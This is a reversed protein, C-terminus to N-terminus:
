PWPAETAARAGPLPRSPSARARAPAPGRSATSATTPRRPHPPTSIDLMAAPTPRSVPRGVVALPPLRPGAVALARLLVDLGKRPELTAVTVLHGDTLGLRRVREAADAPRGVSHSPAAGAVVVPVRVDLHRVLDDAVARTPVVLADAHRAAREAMGRHWRVGRPTLTEPHTWPVTDHVTVVLGARRSRPPALLTPAHVLDVGRPRLPVGAQWAATLGRSPLPLRHTAPAGALRPVWARRHWASWGQVQAGEPATRVLGAVVEATYRGTGGPVRASLQEVVVAIRM